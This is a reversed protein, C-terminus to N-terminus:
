TLDIVEHEGTEDVVEPKDVLDVVEPQRPRNRTRDIARQRIQSVLNLRYTSSSPPHLIPANDSGPAPNSPDGPDLWSAGGGPETNWNIERPPQFWGGGGTQIRPRKWTRGM